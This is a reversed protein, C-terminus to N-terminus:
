GVHRLVDGPGPSGLAALDDSLVLDAGIPRALPTLESGMDFGKGHGVFVCAIDTYPDALEDLAELDIHEGVALNNVHEGHRATENCGHVEAILGAWSGTRRGCEGMSGLASDTSSRALNGRGRM